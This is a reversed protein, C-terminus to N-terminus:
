FRSSRAPTLLSDPVDEARLKALRAYAWGPVAGAGIAGLAAAIPPALPSEIAHAFLWALTAGVAAVAMSGAVAAFWVTMRGALALRLVIIAAIAAPVALAVSSTESWVLAGVGIGVIANSWGAIEAARGERPEYVIAQHLVRLIRRARVVSRRVDGSAWERLAL